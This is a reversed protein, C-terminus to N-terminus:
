GVARDVRAELVIKGGSHGKQSLDQAQRADRLPLVTEVNVKVKGSAVLDAITALQEGNSKQRLFFGRAGQAAAKEPSPPQVLSVIVGGRKLVKWSRDQTDGGITDLVVDVDRAVEEFKTKRYDIVEDAGLLRVQEVHAGSATGIVRAGKWKAFQVAFTGVGGAAGHILVKQGAALKATDFLAQWPTLGAVPLAAAAVDTLEKPKRAIDSEVAVAYEAYSGSEDAVQGFVEDGVRFRTVANGVSEVVGSFDIGMIMPLPTKLYGERIKWDVPNVGAAHVRVLVQNPKPEPRPVDEFQLVDPGGFAHIQVAKMTEKETMTNTMTEGKM